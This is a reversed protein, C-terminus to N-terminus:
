DPDAPVCGDLEGSGGFLYRLWSCVAYGAFAGVPIAADASELYLMSIAASVCGAAIQYMQGNIWVLFPELWFTFEIKFYREDVLISQAHRLNIYFGSDKLSDSADNEKEASDKSKFSFTTAQHVYDYQATVEMKGDVSTITEDTAVFSLHHKELLSQMQKKKHPIVNRLKRLFWNTAKYQTSNYASLFLVTDDM